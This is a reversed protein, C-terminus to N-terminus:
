VAFRRQAAMAHRARHQRLCVSRGHEDQGQQLRGDACARVRYCSRAPESRLYQRGGSKEDRPRGADACIARREGGRLRRERRASHPRDCLAGLPEDSELPNRERARQGAPCDDRNAFRSHFQDAIQATSIVATRHTQNYRTQNRLSLNSNIDHEVRGTYSEQEVDDFDYGVSGYFNNTEVPQNAIVTTPALQYEPWASGPIGYDPVNDQRTVQASGLVRTSTGVGLAISPAVSKNNRAVIDRGPIGGEEWLANVRIASQGLWSGSSGLSLKQNLDVTTRNLDGSGYGYSVNYASEAHPVKTQMNVYGAANGRGVDSGTPGLFVEVQELNYVDRSMLGDDRVGDVFLSNNASFGRLNFMDGTTSSAGGGEGAQLSIGPVNRLADSLTTVGQAEMVERPIVEITQPVEILPQAYKPSSPRPQAAVATVDIAESALRIELTVSNPATARSTVNTGELARALAEGPTFLGNVGPSAVEGIGENTILINLGTLRQIEALVGRLPGAPIDFRLQRQDGSAAQAQWAQAIHTDGPVAIRLSELRRTLEAGQAPTAARPALTASAVFAGM